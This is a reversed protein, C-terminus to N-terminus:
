ETLRFGPRNRRSGPKEVEELQDADRLASFVHNFVKAPYRPLRRQLDRKTEIKGGTLLRKIDHECRAEETVRHRTLMPAIKTFHAVFYDILDSAASVSEVSVVRAAPNLCLAHILALRACYGKLKSYVGAVFPATSCEAQQCHEDHWQVFLAKAETTLTLTLPREEGSLADTVMSLDQLAEFLHSYSEQTKPSVTADSWRNKVPDPYAFLVRQIFGDEGSEEDNLAALGDPTICGAVSLFPRSIFIGEKGQRDVAVPTGSWASLYFQKDAGKGGRYQNMSKVWATLEDRLISVGRPNEALIGALKEITVDATWTRRLIPPTPKMPIDGAKDSKYANLAKSYTALDAEYQQLADKYDDLYQKQRKRLPETTKSLAPTKLSGTTSVIAAYISAHEIWGDKLQIERTRGIAAGAAVIAPIAILDIPVPLAAAQEIVYQRLIPPLAELPFSLANSPPIDPLVDAPTAIPQSEVASSEGEQELLMAAGTQLRTLAEHVSKRNVEFESMM